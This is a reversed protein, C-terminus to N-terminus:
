PVKEGYELYLDKDIAVIIHFEASKQLISKLINVLSIM